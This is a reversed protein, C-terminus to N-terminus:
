YRKEKGREWITPRTTGALAGLVERPLSQTTNVGGTGTLIEGDYLTIDGSEATLTVVDGPAAYLPLAASTAAAALMAIMLNKMTTKM